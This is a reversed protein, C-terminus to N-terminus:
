KKMVLYIGAAMCLTGALKEIDISRTSCYVIMFAFKFTCINIMKINSGPYNKLLEPNDISGHHHIQWM